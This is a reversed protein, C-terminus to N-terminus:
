SLLDNSVINEIIVRDKCISVISHLKSEVLALQDSSIVSDSDSLVKQIVDFAGKWEIDDFFRNQPACLEMYEGHARRASIKCKNIKNYKSVLMRFYSSQTKNVEILNSKGNKIAQSILDTVIKTSIKEM